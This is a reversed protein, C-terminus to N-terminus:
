TTKTKYKVPRGAYIAYLDRYQLQSVKLEMKYNTDLIRTEFKDM